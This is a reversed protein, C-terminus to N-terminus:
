YRKPMPQSTQLSTELLRMPRSHRTNNPHTCDMHAQTPIHDTHSQYMTNTREPPVYLVSSIRTLDSETVRLRPHPVIASSRAVLLLLPMTLVM